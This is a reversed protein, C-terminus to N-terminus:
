KVTLTARGIVSAANGALDKGSVVIRYSGKALTCKYTVYWWAVPPKEYDWSWRKKVVGSKTTIVLETTVEASLADNVKFLIKCSKGRRVSANKAECVPGVTDLSGTTDIKVACSKEAELNGANDASRYGITHTLKTDAPAPVTCSVARTWGGGDLRYETYAVGSAGAGPDLAAFTVTVPSSHWADDYGSATTVPPTVDGGGGGEVTFSLANSTTGGHPIVPNPRRLDRRIPSAPAVAAPRPASATEGRGSWAVYRLGHVEGTPAPVSQASADPAFLVGGAAALLATTVHLQRRM